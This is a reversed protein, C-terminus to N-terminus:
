NQVTSRNKRVSTGSTLISNCENPNPTLTEGRTASMLIFNCEKPNPLQGRGRTYITFTPTTYITCTPAQGGVLQSTLISNCENPNHTLTEERTASTLTSNCKNPNPLQGAGRSNPHPDPYVNLNTCLYCLNETSEAAAITLRNTLTNSWQHRPRLNKM